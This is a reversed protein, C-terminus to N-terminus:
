SFLKGVDVMVWDQYDPAKVWMKMEEPVAVFQFITESKTAGGDTLKTDLIEMVADANLNGKKEEALSLLNEYRTTSDAVYEDGPETTINWEPSIYHNTAAMVGSDTTRVRCIDQSCEYFYASTEDAAGAIYSVPNRYSMFQSDLTKMNGANLLFETYSILLPMKEGTFDPAKLMPAQNMTFAIGASNMANMASVQGANGISALSSSGDDPNYVIVSLTDDYEKFYEFFDENKAFVLPGGGTYDDWVIIQSCAKLYPMISLAVNQDLLILDDVSLGSTEAMGEFLAKIRAPYVEYNAEAIARSEDLPLKLGDATNKIVATQYFSEIQPKLLHGYQRGMEHYNGNLVVVNLKEAKYLTGGEFDSIKELGSIDGASNSGAGALPEEGNGSPNEMCGCTLILALTFTLVITIALNGNRSAAPILNQVTKDSEGHRFIKL